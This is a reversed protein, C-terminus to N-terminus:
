DVANRRRTARLVLQGAAVVMLAAFLWAAQEQPIRQSVLAALLAAPAGIVGAWVGIATSTQGNRVTTISATVATILVVVLSTGRATTLEVGALLVLGPIVVIGGGIGLLGALVGAVVGVALLLWWHGQGTAVESGPEVLRYASYLLLAAFGAQLVPIPVHPLLRVGIQGGAISGLGVILGAQWAVAGGTAYGYAGLLSIPIIALLSTTAATRQDLGLLFVLLPVMVIGGGVGFVGALLGGLVGVLLVKGVPLGPPTM